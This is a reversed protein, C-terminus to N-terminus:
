TTTTDDSVVEEGTVEWEQEPGEEGNELLDPCQQELMQKYRIQRAREMELQRIQLELETINNNVQRYFEQKKPDCKDPTVEIIPDRPEPDDVCKDKCDYMHKMTDTGM